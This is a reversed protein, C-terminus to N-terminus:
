DARIARIQMSVSLLDDDFEGTTHPDRDWVLDFDRRSLRGNGRFEAVQRGSPGEVIGDLSVHLVASVIVDRVRLDGTVLYQHIELPRVERSAFYISPYDEAALFDGSRLHEDRQQNGSEISAADIEVWVETLSPRIQNYVLVGNVRNFRLNISQQELDQVAVDVTSGTPDIEWTLARGITSAQPVNAEWEM